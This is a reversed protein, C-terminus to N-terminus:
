RYVARALEPLSDAPGPEKGSVLAQLVAVWPNASADLIRGDVTGAQLARILERVAVADDLKNERCLRDQVQKLEAATAEQLKKVDVELQKQVEPSKDEFQKLVEKAAPPLDVQASAPAVLCLLITALMGLGVSKM